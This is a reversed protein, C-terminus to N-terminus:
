TFLRQFKKIEATINSKMVSSIACVADAGAEIVEPANSLTIGGIAAVPLPIYKKIERIPKLGVPRGADHKTATSFIPSVGLYDVGLRQAQRAQTLNHVTMGIIKERGLLKRAILVPMDDQGLHVGDADVALAIDVRDNIILKAGKCLKRLKLAEELLTETDASKNRYQIFKVGAKLASGVDSFIGRESLSHETIFYFGRV